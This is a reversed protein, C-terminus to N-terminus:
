ARAEDILSRSNAYRVEDRVDYALSLIKEVSREGGPESAIRLKV